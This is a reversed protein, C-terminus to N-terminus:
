IDYRVTDIESREEILLWFLRGFYHIYIRLGHIRPSEYNCTTTKDTM